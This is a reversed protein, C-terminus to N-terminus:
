DQAANDKHYDGQDTTLAGHFQDEPSQILM